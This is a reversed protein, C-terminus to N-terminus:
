FPIYKKYEWMDYKRKIFIVQLPDYCLLRSEWHNCHCRRMMRSVSRINKINARPFPMTFTFGNEHNVLYPILGEFKDVLYKKNM